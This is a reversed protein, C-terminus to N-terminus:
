FRCYRSNELKTCFSPCFVMGMAFVHYNGPLECIHHVNWPISQGVGQKNRQIFSFYIMSFNYRWDIHNVHFYLHNKDQGDPLMGHYTLGQSFMNEPNHLYYMIECMEQIHTLVDM